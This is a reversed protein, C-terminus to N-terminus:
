RVAFQPPYAAVPQYGYAPQPFGYYPAPQGPMMMQPQMQQYPQMQMMPQVNGQTTNFKRMYPNNGYPNYMMERSSIPQYAPPQMMQPQAVPQQQPQQQQPEAPAQGVVNFSTQRPPYGYMNAVQRAALGQEWGDNPPQQVPQAYYPYAPTIQVPSLQVPQSQPANNRPTFNNANVGSPPKTQATDALSGWGRGANTAAATGAVPPPPLPAPAPQGPLAAGQIPAPPPNTGDVWMGENGDLAPIAGRYQSMDGMMEFWDLKPCIAMINEIHNRFILAVNSIRSATHYFALLLAEFNPAILSNSGYFESTIGPGLIYELLGIITRRDKKSVKVGYVTDSTGRLEDLLPYTVIGARRYDVGDTPGKAKRKLYIKILSNDGTVSTQDIIKSIVDLTKVTIEPVMELLPLYESPHQSPSSAIAALDIVLLSLMANVKMNIMQRLKTIVPSDGLIISECLPHFAIQTERSLTQLIQREPIVLRRNDVTFPTLTGDPMRYSVMMQSDAPLDLSELIKYYFEVPSTAM